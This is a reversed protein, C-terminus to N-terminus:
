CKENEKKPYDETGYRLCKTLIRKQQKSGHMFVYRHKSSRFVRKTKDGSHHRSHKGDKAAMDTRAKTAGTYLWNTAQYVGGIHGQAVDAYSVIVKPKPLLAISRAILLSAENPKNNVLVLRNLEIVKSRHEEGCVGKCLWPSAPSGFTCIGQLVLDRYLGFAYSVSPMRKAYHVNLILSKTDEYKIPIVSYNSGYNTAWQYTMEM